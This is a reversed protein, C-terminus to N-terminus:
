KVFTFKIVYFLKLINLWCEAISNTQILKLLNSATIWLNKGSVLDNANKQILIVQQETESM